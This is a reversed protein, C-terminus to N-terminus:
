YVVIRMRLVEKVRNAFSRKHQGFGEVDSYRNILTSARIFDSYCYVYVLSHCDLPYDGDAFVANLISDLDDVISKYVEIDIHKTSSSHLCEIM